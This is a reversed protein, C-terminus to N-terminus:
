QGTYNTINFSQIRLRLSALIYLHQQQQMGGEMGKGRVGVM